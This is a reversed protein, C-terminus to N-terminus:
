PQAVLAPGTWGIGLSGPDSDAYYTTAALLVKKLDSFALLLEPPLPEGEPVEALKIDAHGDFLERSDVIGAGASRIRGATIAALGRYVKKNKLDELSKAKERCVSAGIWDHRM